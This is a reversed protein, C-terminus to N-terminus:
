RADCESGPSRMIANVVHTDFANTARGFTNYHMLWVFCFACVFVFASLYVPNVPFARLFRSYAIWLPNTGTAMSHCSCYAIKSQKKNCLLMWHMKVSNREKRGERESQPTNKKNMWLVSSYLVTQVFQIQMQITKLFSFTSCILVSLFWFRHPFEFLNIDSTIVVGQGLSFTSSSSYSLIWLYTLLCIVRVTEKQKSANKQTHTYATNYHSWTLKGTPIALAFM